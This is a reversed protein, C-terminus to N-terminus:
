DKLGYYDLVVKRESFPYKVGEIEQYEEHGKGILVIMDDPEAHEICYRIAEARDEIEIFQGNYKALGKQIDKNIDAVKEFRPNDMALVTLDAYKGAIEGMDYRRQVARNGGGGFLCIMRHPKYEALTTLINEMSLANHAYDILISFNEPGPLVEARGRVTTTKLGEEMERIGIGLKHCVMVAALANYTSFKGPMNVQIEDEVLGNLRFTNGLFGPGKTLRRDTAYLDAKPDMGFTEIDCTHGEIIKEWNPDDINILGHRCNQFLLSKCYRYEEFSEHEGPAIHDESLNLFVGYDFTIGGVRNLKLGQSSVEMILYRCGKDVMERFLSQLEYSEPTTNKTKRQEGALYAGLTGITGVQKGAKELINRIMNTTTTKGKTGTIGVTTLQEAPYGFWAASMLALAYRTDSTQIVTVGEPAEVDREVIVAAAGKEVAAPLLTHADVATGSICLFCSGPTVKRSDYVLDTIEKDMGGQICTYDLKELLQALRM